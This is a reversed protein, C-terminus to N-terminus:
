LHGLRNGWRTQRRRDRRRQTSHLWGTLSKPENGRNRPFGTEDTPKPSVAWARIVSHHYLDQCLPRVLTPAASPVEAIRDQPQGPCALLVRDSEPPVTLQV